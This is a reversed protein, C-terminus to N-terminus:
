CTFDSYIPIFFHIANINVPLKDTILGQACLFMLGSFKLFIQFFYSYTIVWITQLFM